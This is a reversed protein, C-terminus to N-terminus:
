TDRPQPRHQLVNIINGDPDAVFFRRVGWPEDTLPYLVNLGLRVANAHVADVDSVEVSVAPSVPAAADTNILSLQIGPDAPSTLTAIWGHSMALKMHLLESYFHATSEPDASPLDPVIRVLHM